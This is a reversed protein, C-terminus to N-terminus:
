DGRGRRGTVAARVLEVPVKPTRDARVLGNLEQFTDTLQTYCFGALETSALVAGVLEAFRQGFAEPSPLDTYAHWGDDGESAIGIGGFETLM